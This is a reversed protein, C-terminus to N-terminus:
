EDLSDDLRWRAAADPAGDLRLTWVLSLKRRLRDSGTLSQGDSRYVAAKIQVAVRV